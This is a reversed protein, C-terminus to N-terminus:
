SFPCNGEFLEGTELVRQDDQRYKEALEESYLDFDTKGTIAALPKGLLDCFSQNAFTFRGERDKRLVHVPLSEVLSSYL